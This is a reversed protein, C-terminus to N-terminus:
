AVSEGRYWPSSPMPTGYLDARLVDAAYHGAVEPAIREGAREADLRLAGLERADEALRTLISALASADMVPYVLGGGDREFLAAAGVMDSCIVPTGALLAENVVVGWGDFRSPLLLADYNAIVRQADGFPIRGRHTVGSIGIFPAPDGSGYLDLSVAAGQRHALAIAEVAVDLGKRAILAGVYVLRLAGTNRPTAVRERGEDRPVFYGFPHIRRADVGNEQYQRGALRSIAFIGAVRLAIFRGYARYAAPRLAARARSAVTVHAGFYSIAGPAYPESILYIHRRLCVAVLLTVIIRWEEFPSVFLHIAEADDKLWRIIARSFRRRPVLERTLTTAHRSVWGQSARDPHEARFIRVVLPAGLDGALAELTHSQHDTLLPVWAVIKM